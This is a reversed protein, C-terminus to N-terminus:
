NGSWGCSLCKRTISHRCCPRARALLQRFSPDGSLNARLVLDNLFCGIVNETEPRLRGAVPTSVAFDEQGSDHHLLAQYAALLTMFKTAGEEGSLREIAQNLQAPCGANSVRAHTTRLEPRPRDTPLELTPLDELQRLWYNRLRSWCTARCVSGSGSPMIPM